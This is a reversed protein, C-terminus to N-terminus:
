QRRPVLLFLLGLGFVAAGVVSGLVWYNSAVLGFYLEVAFALPLVMLGSAVAPWSARGADELRVAAWGTLALVTIALVVAIVALDDRWILATLVPVAALAFAALSEAQASVRHMRAPSDSAVEQESLGAASEAGASPLASRRDAAARTIMVPLIALTGITSGLCCCSCSCCTPTAPRLGGTPHHQTHLRVAAM